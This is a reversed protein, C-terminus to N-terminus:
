VRTLALLTVDDQQAGSRFAVLASEITDLLDDNSAGAVVERLRRPGFEEGSANETEIVGDTYLLMTDGRELAVRSTSWELVPGIGVVPGRLDSWEVSGDARMLLPACHGANVLQLSADPDARGIVLTAFRNFPIEARISRDTIAVVEAPDACDCSRIARDLEEQVMQGHIAAPLGHGAFDGIAFWLTAGFESTFYFDGTFATAPRALARVHWRSASRARSPSERRSPQHAASAPVTDM